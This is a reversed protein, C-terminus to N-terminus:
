LGIGRSKSTGSHGQQGRFELAISPVKYFFFFISNQM